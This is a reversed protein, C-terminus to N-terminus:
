DSPEPLGAGLWAYLPGALLDYLAHVLIPTLLGGTLAALGQFGIAFVFVIAVGMWGQARHGLAFALAALGAALWPQGTLRQLLGFLVGRYAIEEAIGAVLSVVAWLPWESPLRPVLVMLRRREADSATKWRIPVTLFLVSLAVLITFPDAPGLPFLAIRNSRAVFRAAAYILALWFVTEAYIAWRPPTALGSDLLRATQSALLPLLLGLVLLYLLGWLDIPM